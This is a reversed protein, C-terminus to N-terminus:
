RLNNGGNIDLTAGTIYRAEDSALYVAAAGIDNLDGIFGVPNSKALKKMEEEGHTQLFLETAIFGPAISNVTINLPAATRALTKTMGIQGAKTAAYHVHGYLAGRQGVVSSIFIIRGSKQDRMIEMARKSCLYGSTLNTKIIRDWDEMEIEFIDKDQSTGANNVLIDIRGFEKMAEDFMADVSAKDGCDAQIAIAKQGLAQIEAVVDEAAKANGAYNVVVDAGAKALCVAIGRGIGRSSGTVLAVKGKLSFM